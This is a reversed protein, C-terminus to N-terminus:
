IISFRLAKHLVSYRATQAAYPEGDLEMDTELDSHVEVGSVRRLIVAKVKHLAKLYVLPSIVFFIQRPIDKIITLDLQGDGIQADPAWVMGGGSYMGNSVFVNFTNGKYLVRGGVRVTVNVPRSQWVHKLSTMLYNMKSMKDSRSMHIEKAVTGGLGFSSSNIFYIPKECSNLEVRGVDVSITKSSTILRLAMDSKRKKYLTRSFDCATGGDIMCLTPLDQEKVESQLLGNVVEHLTGDGGVVVFKEYKEKILSQALELAHNKRETLFENFNDFLHFVTERYESWNKLVDGRGSKPNMIIATKKM